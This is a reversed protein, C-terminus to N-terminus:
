STMCLRKVRDFRTWYEDGTLAIWDAKLLLARYVLIPEDGVSGPPCRDSRQWRAM